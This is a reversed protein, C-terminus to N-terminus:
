RFIIAFSFIPQAPNCIAAARILHAIPPHGKSANRRHLHLSFPINRPVDRVGREAAESGDAIQM